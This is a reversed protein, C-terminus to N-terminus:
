RRLRKRERECRTARSPAESVNARVNRRILAVRPASRKRVLWGRVYAQIVAINKEKKARMRSEILPRAHRQILISAARQLKFSLRENYM